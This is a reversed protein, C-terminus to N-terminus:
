REQMIGSFVAFAYDAKDARNTYRELESNVRHLANNLADIDATQQPGASETVLEAAVVEQEQMQNEASNKKEVTYTGNLIGQFQETNTWGHKM